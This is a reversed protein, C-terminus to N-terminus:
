FKCNMRMIENERVINYADKIASPEDNVLAEQVDEKAYGM